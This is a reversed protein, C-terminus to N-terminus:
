IEGGQEGWLDDFLGGRLPGLSDRLAETLETSSHYVSVYVAERSMGGEVVAAQLVLLTARNLLGLVKQYDVGTRALYGRIGTVVDDETGPILFVKVLGLAEQYDLGTRTLYSMPGTVVDDEAEPIPLVKM